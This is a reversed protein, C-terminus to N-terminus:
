SFYFPLHLRGGHARSVGNVTGTGLDARITSLPQSCFPCESLPCRNQGGLFCRSRVPWPGLGRCCRCGPHWGQRWAPTRRTHGLRPGRPLGQGHRTPSTATCTGAQRRFRSRTFSSAPPHTAPQALPSSPRTCPCYLGSPLRCRPPRGDGDAEASGPVWSPSPGRGRCPVTRRASTVSWLSSVPRAPTRPDAHARPLM